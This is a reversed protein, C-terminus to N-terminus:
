LIEAMTESEKTRMERWDSSNEDGIGNIHWLGHVCLLLLEQWLEVGRERAQRKATDLSIVIEGLLEPDGEYPFALVDTPYPSNRFRGALAAITADDTLIVDARRKSSKASLKGLARNM